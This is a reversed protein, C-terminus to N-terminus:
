SMEILEKIMASVGAFVESPKAEGYMYAPTTIIKKDRDTVYDTVECRVHNAGTKRIEKATDEDNGITLTIGEDGLVLALLAPAICAAAIPKMKSYFSWVSKEVEALVVGKSGQEAFNCLHVAAGFGGPFVLGDFNEATLESINQIKGRSIRASEILCNRKQGTSEGTIHNTETFELSPAFCSYSAGLSALAILTSVSETIEAGDQFGCGSLVVAIKKM